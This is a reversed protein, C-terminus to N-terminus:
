NRKFFTRVEAEDQKRQGAIEETDSFNRESRIRQHFCVALCEGYWDGRFDFAHVELSVHQTDYFMPKQELNAMGLLKKGKLRISVAYVGPKPLYFSEDVQIDATPYGSTRSRKEGSVVKGTIYFPRGLLREVESVEGTDLLKRIRTSSVKEQDKEVKEIVTHTLRGRADDPLTRMSGVGKYGYTFDFGAVVHKVHLGVFYHEVFDQPSLSALGKDFRVVFLYDIGMEKLIAKKEGLPTIYRAKKGSNKLVVSPHPDFTMVARKLGLEDAKRGAAKIVKQHGKHIGDFFGVATVNPEIELPDVPSSQSLHFTEM